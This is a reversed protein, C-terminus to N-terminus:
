CHQRYNRNFHKYANYKHGQLYWIRHHHGLETVKRFLDNLVLFFFFIRLFKCRNRSYVCCNVAVVFFGKCLPLCM